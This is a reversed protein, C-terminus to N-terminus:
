NIDHHHRQGLLQERLRLTAEIAALKVKKGRPTLFIKGDREEIMKLGKLRRHTRPTLELKVGKDRIRYLIRVDSWRIFDLHDRLKQDSHLIEIIQKSLELDYIGSNILNKVRLGEPIGRNAAPIGRNAAPKADQQAQARYAAVDERTDKYGTPGSKRFMSSTKAIYTAAGEPTHPLSQLALGLPNEELSSQNTYGEIPPQTPAAHSYCRQLISDNWQKLENNNENLPVIDETVYRELQGDAMKQLLAALATLPALILTLVTATQLTSQLTVVVPDAPYSTALYAFPSAVALLLALAKCRRHRGAFHTLITYAVLFVYAAMFAAVVLGMM